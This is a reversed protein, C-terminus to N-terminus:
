VLVLTFSPLFFLFIGLTVGSRCGFVSGLCFWFVSFRDTVDPRRGDAPWLGRERLVAKPGKPKCDLSFDPHNDSFAIQHPLGRTDDFGERMRPQTEGGPGLRM